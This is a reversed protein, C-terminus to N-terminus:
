EMLRRQLTHESSTHSCTHRVKLLLVGVFTSGKSLRFGSGGGRRVMSTSRGRRRRAASKSLRRSRALIATFKSRM